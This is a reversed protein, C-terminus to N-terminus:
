RFQVNFGEVLEYRAQSSIESQILVRLGAAKLAHLSQFDPDESEIRILPRLTVSALSDVRAESLPEFDSVDPIWRSHLMKLLSLISSSEVHFRFDLVKLHPLLISGFSERHNVTLHGLIQSTLMTNLYMGYPLLKHEHVTLASLSPLCKFLAVLDPGPINLNVLSLSSLNCSSRTLFPAMFEDLQSVDDSRYDEYQSLSLHTLNPLTLYRLMWSASPDDEDVIISLSQINSHKLIAKNSLDWPEFRELTVHRAQGAQKLRAVFNDMNWHVFRLHTLQHWPLSVSEFSVPFGITVKRLAPATQFVDIPSTVLPKLKTDFEFSVLQPLQGKLLALKQNFHANGKVNISVTSWRSSHDLLKDLLYCAVATDKPITLTLSLLHHRSLELHTDLMGKVRELPLTSEPSLVFSLTSWLSPTNRALERWGSCVHSLRIAPCDMANSSNVSSKICLFGFVQDLIEPPLRRIPALLSRFQDIQSYVRQQHNKLAIVRAELRRIEDEYRKAETEAESLCQLAHKTDCTYTGFNGRLLDRVSTKQNTM